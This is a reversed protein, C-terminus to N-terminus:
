VVICVRLRKVLFIFIKILIIIIVVLIQLHIEPLVLIIMFQLNHLLIHSYKTHYAILGLALDSKTYQVTAGFLNQKLSNKNEVETPTRHLGTQNVTAQVLNGEANLQQSADLNRFSVFPNFELNKAINITTSIGRM